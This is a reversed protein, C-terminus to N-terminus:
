RDAVMKLENLVQTKDNQKDVDAPMSLNQLCTQLYSNNRQRQSM